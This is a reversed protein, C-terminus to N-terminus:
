RVQCLDCRDHALEFRRQEALQEEYTRGNHLLSNRSTRSMDAKCRINTERIPSAMKFSLNVRRGPGKKKPLRRPLGLGDPPKHLCPTQSCADNAFSAFQGNLYLSRLPDRFFERHSARFASM